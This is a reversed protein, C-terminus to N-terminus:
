KNLIKKFSDISNAFGAFGGHALVWDIFNKQANERKDNESYKWNEKKVEVATFVGISKGVMDPTIVITTIGILDGSKFRENIKKSDNGLGYRIVRGTSDKAAGSNNRLLICNLKPGELRIESQVVDELKM